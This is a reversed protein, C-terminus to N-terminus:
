QNRRKEEFRRVKEEQERTYQEAELEARKVAPMRDREAAAALSASEPTPLVTPRIFVMLEKRDSNKSASRFLAGILPIDKLIPLGSKSRSSSTSIFGGLVVTERDRVAVKANAERDKTIPVEGVNAIFVTGQADQIKQHIDMVVLGDPNILPLVSLTVGIQLQQISAYGGFAGGGYYSTSPYPRTEGVFLLAEVAHSTQVRPRQLVQIRNDQAVAKVVVDLDNNWKAFYSFGSILNSSLSTVGFVDGDPTNNRLAGAGSFKGSDQRRFLYSIGYESSDILQVEIILSEILV